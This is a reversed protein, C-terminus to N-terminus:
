MPHKGNQDLNIYSLIDSQKVLEIGTAWLLDFSKHSCKGCNCHTKANFYFYKVKFYIM